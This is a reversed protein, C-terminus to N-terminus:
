VLHKSLEARENDPIRESKQTQYNFHIMVLKCHAAKINNQYLEHEIIMSSNGLKSFYTKIEIDTGFHIQQLYDVENKALILRWKKPDLDPTFIEFIPNRAQEFWELLVVNSVHGLADTDCFRPTITTKFM